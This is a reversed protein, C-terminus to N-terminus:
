RRAKRFAALSIISGAAGILFITAITPLNDITNPTGPDPITESSRKYYLSIDYDVDNTTSAPLMDETIDINDGDVIATGRTFVYGQAKLADSIAVELEASNCASNEPTSQTELTEGTDEDIHKIIISCYSPAEAGSIVAFNSYATYNNTTDHTTSPQGDVTVTIETGNLSSTANTYQDGPQSQTANTTGNTSQVLYKSSSNFSLATVEGRYDDYYNNQAVAPIETSKNAAFLTVTDDIYVGVGNERVLPNDLRQFYTGGAGIGNSYTGGFASVNAHDTINVQYYVSYWENSYHNPAGSGIGAGSKVRYGPRDVPDYDDIDESIAVVKTNEGHINITGTLVPYPYGWDDEDSYIAKAIVQDYGGGIGASGKGIAYVDGGSIDILQISGNDGAGIGAGTPAANDDPEHPGHLARITGGSIRIVGANQNSGGGIGAALYGGQATINGGSINIEVNNFAIGGDGRASGVGIGAGGGIRDTDGNTLGSATINGNKINIKGNITSHWAPSYDKAVTGGTGIGAGGDFDNRNDNHGMTANTIGSYSNLTGTFDTDITIEGFDPGYSWNWQGDDPEGFGDWESWSGNGGIGAGSGCQFTESQNKDAGRGGTVTLNGSGKIILKASGAADYEQGNYKPSVLIGAACTGAYITNNGELNLTLTAGPKIEIGATKAIGRADITANSLTIETTETVVQPAVTGSLSAANASACPLLSAGALALAPLIYKKKAM